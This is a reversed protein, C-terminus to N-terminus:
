TFYIWKKFFPLNKNEKIYNPIFSKNIKVINTFHCDDMFVNLLIQNYITITSISVLKFGEINHINVM